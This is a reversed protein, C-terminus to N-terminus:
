AKLREKMERNEQSLTSMRTTDEFLIIAGLVQSDLILPTAVLTAHGRGGHPLQYRVMEQRLPHNAALNKHLRSLLSRSLAPIRLTWLLQGIAERETLGLLREAALNWATIHGTASLVVVGASVTRIITHQCFDMADIEQTRHALERNTADLEANTSQLEENTTELEENTSQLEENTTQLEENASQLEENTTELEENSARLEENSSQLRLNATNLEDNARQLSQELSRLATVDHAAYLLGANEASESRLPVVQARIALPEGGPVNLTGDGSERESRGARVRASQEVLLEQSLGPLALTVLRKGTVDKEHRSWLRAAAQNFLTVTGQGDTAILPCPHSDLVDRLFAHQPAPPPPADASRRSPEPPEGPPVMPHQPVWPLEQRGDKRYIRRPLDEPAFLKAAFPILESRGLALVGDRRLAFHFRALARKQLESDLYIFVNRCLILDIRSVPADSVLNNVGFVVSRRIEKRVAYGGSAPVFWRALQEKGCGELQQLTYVGRRAFAIAAEDVDTGFVKLETGPMGPGMAEAAAIAISYAEEGTACGASWIRLEQDPRRKRVLEKVVKRLSTWVEPDRFFTTLKILMSSVLTNVENTDRELLALYASRTRCRTAAMRRDIRRQLTARKYNRFDFNRVQRVKELIAELESDRPPKSAM